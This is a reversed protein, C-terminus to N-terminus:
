WLLISLMVSLFAAVAVAVPRRVTLYATTFGAVPAAYSRRSPQAAAFTVSEAPVLMM